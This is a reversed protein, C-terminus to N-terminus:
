QNVDEQGDLKPKALTISLSDNQGQSMGSEIKLSGDSLERFTVDTYKDWDVNLCAGQKEFCFVKLEDMSDPWRDNEAYFFLSPASLETTTKAVDEAMRCM